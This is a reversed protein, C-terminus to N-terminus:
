VADQDRIHLKHQQNIAMVSQDGHHMHTLLLESSKTFRHGIRVTYSKFLWSWFNQEYIAEDLDRWKVGSVGKAWPLIGAYVWVGSADYYFRYSAIEAFRFGAYGLLLVLLVGGAPLGAFLALLATLFIGLLVIGALGLYATWSKGPLVHAGAPLADSYDQEM